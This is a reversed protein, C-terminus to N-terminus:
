RVRTRLRVQVTEGPLLEPVLWRVHTYASPPVVVEKEVLRGNERVFIKKKLPPPAFHVGDYSFVPAVKVVREDRKLALPRVSGPLYATHPPIPVTLAVEKLAQDSRNKATLVWELVDGPAVEAAPVLKEVVRGSADVERVVQYSVLSLELASAAAALALLAGLFWLGKRYKAM